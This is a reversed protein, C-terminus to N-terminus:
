SISRLRGAAFSRCNAYVFVILQRFHVILANHWVPVKHLCVDSFGRTPMKKRVMGYMGFICEYIHTMNLSLM